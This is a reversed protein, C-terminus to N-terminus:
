ASYGPGLITAVARDFRLRRDDDPGVIRDLWLRVDDIDLSGATLLLMQDIDIWDKSRNFIM